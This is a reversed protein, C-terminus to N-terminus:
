KKFRKVYFHHQMKDLIEHTQILTMSIEWKVMCLPRPILFWAVELYVIEYGLKNRKCSLSAKSM